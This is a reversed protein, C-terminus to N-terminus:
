PSIREDEIGPRIRSSWRRRHERLRREGTEPTFRAFADARRTIGALEERSQFFAGMNQQALQGEGKTTRSLYELAGDEIVREIKAPFPWIDEDREFKQIEAYYSFHLQRRYRPFPSVILYLRGRFGAEITALVPDGTVLVSTLVHTGFGPGFRREDFREPNVIDINGPAVFQLFAVEADFDEPLALRDEVIHYSKGTATTGNWETTLEISTPSHVRAVEYLEEHGGAHFTRGVMGSEWETSTGAVLRSGETVNVTGTTHEPVTVVFGRKHLFRWNAYQGLAVGVRNVAQLTKEVLPPRSGEITTVGTTQAWNASRLVQNVM